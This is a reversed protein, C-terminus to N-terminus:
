PSLYVLCCCSDLVELPPFYLLVEKLELYHVELLAEKIKIVVVFPIEV